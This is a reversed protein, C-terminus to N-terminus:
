IPDMEKGSADISIENQEEQSKVFTLHDETKNECNLACDYNSKVFSLMKDSLM